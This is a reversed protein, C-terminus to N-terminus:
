NRFMHYCTNSIRETSFSVCIRFVRDWEHAWNMLNSIYLASNTTNGYNCFRKRENTLTQNQECSMRAYTAIVHYFRSFIPM